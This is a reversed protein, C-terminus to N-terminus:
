QAQLAEEGSRLLRARECVRCPRCSSRISARAPSGSVVNLPHHDKASMDLTTNINDVSRESVTRGGGAVLPELLIVPAGEKM